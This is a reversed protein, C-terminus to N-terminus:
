EVVSANTDGGGAGGVSSGGSIIVGIGTENVVDGGSITVGPAIVVTSGGEVGSQEGGVTVVSGLYDQAQAGADGAAIFSAALAVALAVRRFQLNKM